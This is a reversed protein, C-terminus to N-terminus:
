VTANHRRVQIRELQYASLGMVVPEIVKKKHLPNTRAEYRERYKKNACTGKKHMDGCNKKSGKIDPHPKKCGECKNM